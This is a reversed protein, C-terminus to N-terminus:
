RAGGLILPLAAFDHFASRPQCLERRSLKLDETQYDGPQQILLDGRLKADLKARDLGMPGPYHLFHAYHGYSLQDPQRLLRIDHWCWM